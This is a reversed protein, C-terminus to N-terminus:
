AAGKIDTHRGLRQCQYDQRRRIVHPAAYPSLRHPADTLKEGMHRRRRGGGWHRQLGLTRRLQRRIVGVEEAGVLLAPLLAHAHRGNAV